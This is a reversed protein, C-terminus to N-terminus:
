LSVSNSTKKLLYIYNPNLIKGDAITLGKNIYKNKDEDFYRKYGFQLNSNIGYAKQPVWFMGFYEGDECLDFAKFIDQETRNVEYENFKHKKDSSDFGAKNIPQNNDDTLTCLNSVYTQKAMAFEPTESEMGVPIKAFLKKEWAKWDAIENEDFEIINTSPIRQIGAAVNTLIGTPQGNGTGRAIAKDMGTLYADVLAQAFEKEFEDIALTAMLLSEAIRVEGIHYAFSVSGTVAGGKQEESVGHEPDNGNTGSWVFTADFDAIPIEVGGPVNLKRVKSYLNGRVKSIKKIFQNIVTHPISVGLDSSVNETATRYEALISNLKESRVGTKAYNMFEKRYEMSSLLDEDREEKKNMSTTNLVNMAKAPNFASRAEEAEKKEEAEVEKLQAEADKIEETVSEIQAGINKVENIDESEDNRKKLNALEKQKRAILKLLYDKM